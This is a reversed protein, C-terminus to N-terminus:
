SRSEKASKREVPAPPEDASRATNPALRAARGQKFISGPLLNIVGGEKLEAILQELREELRDMRDWDEELSAELRVVPDDSRLRRKLDESLRREREADRTKAALDNAKEIVRDINEKALSRELREVIEANMPRRNRKAAQELRRLLAGKLRLRLHPADPDHKWVM